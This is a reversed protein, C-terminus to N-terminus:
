PRCSTLRFQKLCLLAASTRLTFAEALTRAVLRAIEVVDVLEAGHAGAIALQVDRALKVIETFVDALLGVYSRRMRVNHPPQLLVECGSAGVEAVAVRGAAVRTGHAFRFARQAEPDWAM